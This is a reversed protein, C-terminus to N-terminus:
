LLWGENAVPVSIQFFDQPEQTSFASHSNNSSRQGIPDASHESDEWRFGRWTSWHGYGDDRLGYDFWGDSDQDVWRENLASGFTYYTAGNSEYSSYSDGGFREYVQETVIFEDTTVDPM